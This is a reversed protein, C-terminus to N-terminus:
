RATRNPLFAGFIRAVRAAHADLALEPVARPALEPGDAAARACDAFARADGARAACYYPTGAFAAAVFPHQSAYVLKKPKDYIVDVYACGAAVADVASPGLLPDGLGLLFKSERLLSRWSGADLHGRWVIDANRLAPSPPRPLTSHLTAVKAVALIAAERGRFHDPSKGWLVGQRKKVTPPEPDPMAYGLFTNGPFTPFATLLRAAPM